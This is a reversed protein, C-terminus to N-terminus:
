ANQKVLDHIKSMQRRLKNNEEKLASIEDIYKKTTNSYEIESKPLINHDLIFRKQAEEKLLLLTKLENKDVFGKDALMQGFKKSGDNEAIVIKLQEDSITGCKEFYEGIRLRGSIFGSMASVVSSNPKKIFNQDICFELYKAAEEPSLYNNVAIELISLGDQCCKLFGYINNDFGCNRELLETKGQFTLTPVFAPFLDEEKSAPADNKIESSLKQYMVQKVWLPVEFVKNLFLEFNNKKM